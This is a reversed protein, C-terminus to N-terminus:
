LLVLLISPDNALQTNNPVATKTMELPRNWRKPRKAEKQVILMEQEKREAEEARQREQSDQRGQKEEV